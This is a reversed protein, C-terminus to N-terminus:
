RCSGYITARDEEVVIQELCLPYDAPYWSLSDEVIQRVEEKVFAPTLMGAIAVSEIEVTPLCDQVIVRCQVTTPLEFGLVQVDGTLTIADRELDAWVNHYPLDPYSALLAAIEENLAAEQYRIQVARGAASHRIEADMLMLGELDPDSLLIPGSDPLPAMAVEPEQATPLPKSTPAATPQPTPTDPPLTATPLTEAEVPTTRQRATPAPTSTPPPPDSRTFTPEVVSVMETVTPQPSWVLAPVPTRIPLRVLGEEGFAVVTAQKERIFSEVGLDVLDSAMVAVAVAATLWFVLNFVAFIVLWSGRPIRRPM